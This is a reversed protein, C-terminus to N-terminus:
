LQFNEINKQMRQVAALLSDADAVSANGKGIAAGLKASADALGPQQEKMQMVKERLGLRMGDLDAALDNFKDSEGLSIRHSMDGGTLTALDKRISALPGALSKWLAHITYILFAAFILLTVAHTGLTIPLLLESTTTIKIHSSFRFRELRKEALYAFLLVTAAAWVTAIAVFRLIFRTQFDKKIFYIKRKNSRM